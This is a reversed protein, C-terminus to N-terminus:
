ASDVLTEASVDDLGGFLSKIASKRREATRTTSTASVSPSRSFQSTVISHYDSIDTDSEERFKFRRGDKMDMVVEFQAKNLEVNDIESFPAANMLSTDPDYIYIVFSEHLRSDRGLWVRCEHLDETEDQDFGVVMVRGNILSKEMKTMGEMSSFDSIEGSLPGLLM